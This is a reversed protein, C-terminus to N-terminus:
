RPKVTGVYTGAKKLESEMKEVTITGPDYYVTDTEKFYHIGTEVKKVGELGILAAKGEDYCKVTFVVKSTGQEQPYSMKVGSFVFLFMLLIIAPLRCTLVTFTSWTDTQSNMNM